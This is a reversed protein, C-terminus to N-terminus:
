MQGRASPESYPFATYLKYSGAQTIYRASVLRIDFIFVSATIMGTLELGERVEVFRRVPGLCSRSQNCCGFECSHFPFTPPAQSHQQHHKVNRDYMSACSYRRLITSVLHSYIDGLVEIGSELGFRALGTASCFEMALTSSDLRFTRSM